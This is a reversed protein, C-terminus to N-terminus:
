KTTTKVYMPAGIRGYRYPSKCFCLRLLFIFYQSLVDKSVVKMYINLTFAVCKIHIEVTTMIVANTVTSLKGQECSHNIFLKELCYIM